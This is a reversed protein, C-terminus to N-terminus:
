LIKEFNEVLIVGGVSPLRIAQLIIEDASWMLECPLMGAKGCLTIQGETESWQSVQPVTGLVERLYAFLSESPIDGESLSMVLGHYTVRTGSEGFEVTLGSVATPESLEVLLGDKTKTVSFGIPQSVGELAASGDFRFPASMAALVAERNKSQGAAGCGAM